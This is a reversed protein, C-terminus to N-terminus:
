GIDRKWVGLRAYRRSEHGLPMGWLYVMARVLEHYTNTISHCPKAHKISQQPRGCPIPFPKEGDVLILIDQSLRDCSEVDVTRPARCPVIM